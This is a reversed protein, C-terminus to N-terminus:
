RSNKDYADQILKYLYAEPKQNKKKALEEVMLLQLNKIELKKNSM